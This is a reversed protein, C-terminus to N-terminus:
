EYKQLISVAPLCGGPVKWNYSSTEQKKFDLVNWSKKRQNWTILEPISDGNLDASLPIDNKYGFKIQDRGKTGAYLFYWTQDKPRWFVLDCKGDANYDNPVIIDWEQGHQIHESQGFDFKTSSIVTHWVGDDPRWVLLDSKGDGDYDGSFVSDQYSGELVVRPSDNGEENTEILLWTSSNPRWITPKYFGLGGVDTPIPLDGTAGLFQKEPPGPKATLFLIWQGTDEQFFAFDTKKDGDYDAFVPQFSVENEFFRREYFKKNSSLQFYLTNSKPEWVSLDCLKDGDFDCGYYSLSSFIVLKDNTLDALGAPIVLM